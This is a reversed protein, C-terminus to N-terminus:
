LRFLIWLLNRIGWDTTVPSNVHHSIVAVTYLAILLSHHLHILCLTTLLLLVHLLDRILSSTSRSGTYAHFLIRLWYFLYFWHILHIHTLFSLWILFVLLFFRIRWATLRFILLWLRLFLRCSGAVFFFPCVAVIIVVFLFIFILFRFFIFFVFLVFVKLFIGLVVSRFFRWFVGFFVAFVRFDRGSFWFLWFLWFFWFLCKVVVLVKSCWARVLMLTLFLLLLTLFFM